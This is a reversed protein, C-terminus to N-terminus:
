GARGHTPLDSNTAVRAGPRHARTTLGYRRTSCAHGTHRARAPTSAVAAAATCAAAATGTTAGTTGTAAASAGHLAGATVLCARQHVAVLRLHRAASLLTIPVDFRRLAVILAVWVP